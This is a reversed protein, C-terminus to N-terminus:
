YLDGEMISEERGRRRGRGWEKKGKEWKKTKERRRKWKRKGGKGVRRVLFLTMNEKTKLLMELTKHQKQEKM